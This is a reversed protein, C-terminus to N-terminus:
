RPECQFYNGCGFGHLGDINWGNIGLALTSRHHAGVGGSCGYKGHGPLCSRFETGGIVLGGFARDSNYAAKMGRHLLVLYLILVVVGGVMGYEEIVIAYIFDSYPHPLYTANIATAQAKGPVGGTAVAIRAHKAQFPLEKAM